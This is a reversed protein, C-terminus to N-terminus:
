CGKQSPIKRLIWDLSGRASNKAKEWVSSMDGFTFVRQWGLGLKKDEKDGISTKRLDKCQKSELVLVHCISETDLGADSLLAFYYSYSSRMWIESALKHRVIHLVEM